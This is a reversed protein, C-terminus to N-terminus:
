EENVRFNIFHTVTSVIENLSLVSYSDHCKPESGIRNKGFSVNQNPENKSPEPEKGM